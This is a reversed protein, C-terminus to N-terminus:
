TSRGVVRGSAGVDVNGLLILDLHLSEIAEIDENPYSVVLRSRSFTPHLYTSENENFAAIDLREGHAKVDPYFASLVKQEMAVLLKFLALEMTRVLGRTRISTKARNWLTGRRPSSADPLLYFLEIQESNALEAVTEHLYKSCGTSELLIGIRKM